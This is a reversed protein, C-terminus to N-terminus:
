KKVNKKMQERPDIVELQRLDERISSDLERRDFVLKHMLWGQEDEPGDSLRIGFTDRCSLCDVLGHLKCIDVHTVPQAPPAADSSAATKQLKARFANLKLLTDMEDRSDPQRKAAAARGRETWKQRHRELASLQKEPREASRHQQTASSSSSGNGRLEAELQAIKKQTERLQAAKMQELFSLPQAATATETGQTPPPKSSPAATKLTAAATDRSLKPDDLLDHSSKIGAHSDSDNDSDAEFSLLKTNKKALLQDSALLTREQAPKAPRKARERPVIDDFPNVEVKASLIRPAWVPREGEVEVEGIRLLNYISDGVLSGFLTAKGNLEAAESLTIFFQSTNAAKPTAAAAADVTVAAMGVLGRRSFRLRSHTEIGFRGDASVAAAGLEREDAAADAYDHATLGAQVCFGPVIRHFASGDYYGELCLQVFNRCAMPCEKSWLEIQLPGHTTELVIKGHTRPETSYVNSM